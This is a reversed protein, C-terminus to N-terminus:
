PSWRSRASRHSAVSIAKEAWMRILPISMSPRQIRFPEASATRRHTSSSPPAIGASSAVMTPDIAFDPAVTASAIVVSGPKMTVLAGQEGFLVAETQAANVVLTVVVECQEGLEAPNACAVGGETVFAQLVESRLDCAHVRFGARLLSRAVGLGMAGLGIVGVNRSM